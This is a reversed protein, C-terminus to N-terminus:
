ARLSSLVVTPLDRTREAGHGNTHHRTQNLAAAPRRIATAAANDRTRRRCLRAAIERRGGTQDGGAAARPRGTVQRVADRGDRAMAPVMVRVGRAHAHLMLRANSSTQARTCYSVGYTCWRGRGVLRRQEGRRGVAATPLRVVGPLPTSSVPDCTLQSQIRESELPSTGPSRPLPAPREARAPAVFPHLLVHLSQDGNSVAM